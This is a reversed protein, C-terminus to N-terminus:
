LRRMFSNSGLPGCPPTLVYWPNPLLKNAHAWLGWGRAARLQGGAIGAFCKTKNQPNSSFTM